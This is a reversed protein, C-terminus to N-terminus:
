NAHVVVFTGLSIITLAVTVGVVMLWAVLLKLPVQRNLAMIGLITTAGFVCWGIFAM